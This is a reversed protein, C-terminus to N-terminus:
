LIVVSYVKVRGDSTDKFHQTMKYKGELNTNVKIGSGFSAVGFETREPMTYTQLPLVAAAKKLPEKIATSAIEIRPVIVCSVNVMHSRSEATAPSVTLSNLVIVGLAGAIIKAAIKM